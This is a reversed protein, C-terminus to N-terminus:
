KEEEIIEVEVPSLSVIEVETACYPCELIDGRQPNAPLPISQHCDPCKISSSTNKKDMKDSIITHYHSFTM